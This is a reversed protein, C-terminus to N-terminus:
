LPLAPSVAVAVAVSIIPLSVSASAFPCLACPAHDLPCSIERWSGVTVSKKSQKVRAHVVVRQGDLQRQEAELAVRQALLEQVKADQDDTSGMWGPGGQTLRRTSVACENGASNQLVRACWRRRCPCLPVPTPAGRERVYLRAHLIRMPMGCVLVSMGIQETIKAAEEMASRQTRARTERM